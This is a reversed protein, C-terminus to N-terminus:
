LNFPYNAAVIIPSDNESKKGSMASLGMRLNSTVRQNVTVVNNSISITALVIRSKTQTYVKPNGIGGDHEVEGGGFDKDVAKSKISASIITPWSAANFSLELWIIDNNATKAWGSDKTDPSSKTLLGTITQRDLYSFSTFLLSNYSVGRKYTTTGGENSSIISVKFPHDVSQAISDNKIPLTRFM